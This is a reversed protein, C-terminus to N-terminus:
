WIVADADFDSGDHFKVDKRLSFTWITKTEPDVSYSEALGPILKAAEDRKSLDWSFLADYLTFGIFRIGEAGQSPQGTTLPIDGLTMALRLVKETAARAPAPAVYEVAPLVAASAGAKLFLRRDMSQEEIHREKQGTM